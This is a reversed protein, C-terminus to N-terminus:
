EAMRVKHWYRFLGSAGMQAPGAFDYATLIEEDLGLAQGREHLWAVYRGRLTEVDPIDPMVAELWQEVEDLARGAFTLHVAADEYIGFHTPALRVCGTERIRELSDRWKGLHTEPPAFPLRVYLPGAMRVGGVDGVFCTDRFVYAVHHEAHGPTHLATIKLEGIAIEAGDRVETLNAAPVPLFEGWLEDMKEGYIRRASAILKEPNLM